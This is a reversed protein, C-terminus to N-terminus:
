AAKVRNCFWNAFEETKLATRSGVKYKPPGEGLSILNQISKKKITYATVREAEELSILPVNNAAAIIQECTVISGKM